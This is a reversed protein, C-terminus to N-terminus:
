GSRWAAESGDGPPRSSPPTMAQLLRQLRPHYSALVARFEREIADRYRVSGMRPHRRYETLPRDLYSIPYGALLCRVWFDYDHTYPLAEDFGGLRDFLERRMMVTCGNVVNGTLFSECFRSMGDFRAYVPAGNRRGREDIERFATHSVWAGTSEMFRLQEELKRPLFRDDSSLWAVYDGSARGFGLNLASATGGNPKEAIVAKSAYSRLRWSERTSGDDVVILEVSGSYTQLLVSDLAEGIYPDDYFPVVVSIKPRGGSM